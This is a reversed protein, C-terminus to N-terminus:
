QMATVETFERPTFLYQLAVRQCVKSSLLGMWDLADNFVKSEQPNLSGASLCHACLKTISLRRMCWDCDTRNPTITTNDPAYLLDEDTIVLCLCVARGGLPRVLVATRLYKPVTCVLYCYNQRVCLFPLCRRERPDNRM